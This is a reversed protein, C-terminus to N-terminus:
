HARYRSNGVRRRGEVPVKALYTLVEADTEHLEVIRKMYPDEQPTAYFLGLISGPLALLQKAGDENSWLSPM